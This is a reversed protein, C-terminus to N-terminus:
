RNRKHRKKDRDKKLRFDPHMSRRLHFMEMNSKIEEFTTVDADTDNMTDYNMEYPENNAEKSEITENVAKKTRRILAIKSLVLNDSNLGESDSENLSQLRRLFTMEKVPDVVDISTHFVTALNNIGTKQKIPPTHKQIASPEPHMAFDGVMENDLGMRVDKIDNLVAAEQALNMVSAMYTTDVCADPKESILVLERLPDKFNVRHLDQSSRRPIKETLLHKNLPDSSMTVTNGDSALIIDHAFSMADITATLASQAPAVNQM